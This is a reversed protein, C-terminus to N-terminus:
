ARLGPYKSESQTSARAFHAQTWEVCDAQRFSAVQRQFGALELQSAKVGNIRAVRFSGHLAKLVRFGDGEPLGGGGVDFRVLRGPLIRLM